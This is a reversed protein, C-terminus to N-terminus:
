TQAHHSRCNLEFLLQKYVAQVFVVKGLYILSRDLFWLYLRDLYYFVQLFYQTLIEHWTVHNISQHHRYNEWHNVLFVNTPLTTIAHHFAYRHSSALYFLVFQPFIGLVPLYATNLSRQDCLQENVLMM